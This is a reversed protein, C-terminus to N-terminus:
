DEILARRLQLKKALEEAMGAARPPPSRRCPVRPDPGGGALSGLPVVRGGGGWEGRDHPPLLARRAAPRPASSQPDREGQETVYTQEGGRTEEGNTGDTEVLERLGGQLGGLRPSCDPHLPRLSGKSSEVFSRVVQALSSCRHPTDVDIVYGRDVRNVRYHKLLVAGNLEQCTTVSIGRGHGGPRLVMNGGGAGRELLREAELRTVEFFCPPVGGLECPRHHSPPAPPSGPTARRDREQCLAESLRFVRGPLLALDTPVKLEAMTLIFGWWMEQAEQSEAKLTVEQGRLRLVLGGGEARVAVLEGLDLVELPECDRPGGYFALALGRLGAWVRRSGQPPPPAPSLEPVPPQPSAGPCRCGPSRPSAGPPPPSRPPPDTGPHRPRDRPTGAWRTGHGGSRWSARTATGPGTGTGTGPPCHWRGPWRRGGCSGCTGGSRAPGERAAPVPCGRGPAFPLP